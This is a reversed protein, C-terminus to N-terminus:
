FGAVIEMGELRLSKIPFRFERESVSAIPESNKRAYKKRAPETESVEEKKQRNMVCIKQEISLPNRQYKEGFVKIAEKREGGKLKAIVKLLKKEEASYFRMTKKM